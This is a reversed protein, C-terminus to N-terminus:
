DDCLVAEEDEKKKDAQMVPIVKELIMESEASFRQIALHMKHFAPTLSLKLTEVTKQTDCSPPIEFYASVIPMYGCKISGAYSDPGSYHMHDKMASHIENETYVHSVRTGVEFPDLDVKIELPPTM